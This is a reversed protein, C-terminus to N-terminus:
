VKALWRNAHELRADLQSVTAEAIRRLGIQRNLEANVQAHTLGTRRALERAADANAARLADKTQRRTQGESGIIATALRPVPALTVEIGEPPTSWEDPLMEQWPSVSVMDTAVASLPAFLSMQSFAIAHGEFPENGILLQRLKQPARIEERDGTARLQLADGRELGHRASKGDDGSIRERQRLEDSGSDVSLQKSWSVSGVGRARDCSEDIAFLTPCRHRTGAALDGLTM